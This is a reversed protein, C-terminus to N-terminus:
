RVKEQIQPDDGWAGGGLSSMQSASESESSESGAGTNDDNSGATAVTSAATQQFVERGREEGLANVLIDRVSTQTHDRHAAFAAMNM